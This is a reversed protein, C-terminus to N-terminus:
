QFCVNFFVGAGPPRNVLWDSPLYGIFLGTVVVRTVTVSGDVHTASSMGLVYTLYVSTIRGKQCKHNSKRISKETGSINLAFM